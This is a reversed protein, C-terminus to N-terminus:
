LGSLARLDTFVAARQQAATIQPWHGAIRRASAADKRALSGALACLLAYARQHETLEGGELLATGLRTM